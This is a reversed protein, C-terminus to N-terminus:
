RKRRNRGKNDIKKACKKCYKKINTKRERGNDLILSYEKLKYLILIVTNVIYLFLNLYFLTEIKKKQFKRRYFKEEVM